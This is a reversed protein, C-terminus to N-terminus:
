ARPEEALAFSVRFITGGGARALAEVKAGMAEAQLAVLHLGLGTGKSARTAENGIRYFAQFIRSREEDPIGPGRDQVELRVRREALEVRVRIPESKEDQPDV